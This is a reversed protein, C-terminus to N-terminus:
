DEQPDPLASNERPRVFVRTFPKHTAIRYELYPGAYLPRVTFGKYPTQQNETM